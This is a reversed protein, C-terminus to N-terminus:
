KGVARALAALDLAFGAISRSPLSAGQVLSEVLRADERHWARVRVNRPDIVWYEKVGRKEYEDKKTILDYVETGPSIVEVVLGPADTLREPISESSTPCPRAYVCVDPRLVSLADIYLDTEAYVDAIGGSRAFDQLQYVVEMFVKSHRPMPSPSVIIVGEILETREPTEGLALYEEATM